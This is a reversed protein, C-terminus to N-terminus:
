GECEECLLKRMETRRSVNRTVKNELNRQRWYKEIGGSGMRNDALGHEKTRDESSVM